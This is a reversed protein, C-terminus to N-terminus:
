PPHKALFCHFTTAQRLCATHQGIVLVFPTRPIMACFVSFQPGPFRPIQLDPVQLDLLTPDLFDLPKSSVTHLGHHHHQSALMEGGGGLDLGPRAWALNPFDPSRSIWFNQIWLIFFTSIRLNWIQEAWITPLTQILLFLMRRAGNPTM